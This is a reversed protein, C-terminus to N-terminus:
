DPVPKPRPMEEYEGLGYRLRHNLDNIAQRLARANGAVDLLGQRVFRDRLRETLHKPLEDVMLQGELEAVVGILV